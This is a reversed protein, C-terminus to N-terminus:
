DERLRGRDIKVWIDRLAGEVDSGGDNNIIYHARRCREEDSMQAAMRAKVQAESAGDRKMVRELCVREPARVLLVEDVLRDFGSEYLIACEMVVLPGDQKDVWQLFDDQVVPHVLRNIREAHLPSAFLYSAIREGVWDVLGRRITASEMMLRKAEKDTDYVPIHRRRLLDAVYSKGCGIGGTLGVKIM